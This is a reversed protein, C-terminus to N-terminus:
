LEKEMFLTEAHPNDYYPAIERFGYFRYLAVARPMREPLTDLRMKQYGITRAETILREILQRGLGSARFAARVFLRKMECTEADLKRLAICGAIQAAVSAVLLRGDPAAYKGPLSKLEEEFSQFCLDIGLWQQYERFLTRASEIQEPTEAQVIMFFRRNPQKSRTQNLHCKILCQERSEASHEVRAARCALGDFVFIRAGLEFAGVLKDLQNYRRSENDFRKRGNTKHHEPYVMRVHVRRHSSDFCNRCDAM